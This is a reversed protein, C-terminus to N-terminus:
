ISDQLISNIVQTAMTHHSEIGVHCQDRAWDDVTLCFDTINEYESFNKVGINIIKADKYIATVLRYNLERRSQFFNCDEGALIFDIISKQASFIGNTIVENDNLTAYRDQEPWQVFLMKPMKKVYTIWRLLNHTIIDMGSGATSLNYYDYGLKNAIMYPYTKEIELGLGETTSCGAFLIYNDLDIERFDKCRHGLSNYNYTIEATRYYWDDPFLRLNNQYKEETDTGAFKLNQNPEYSIFGNEHLLIM